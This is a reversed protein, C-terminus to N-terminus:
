RVVSPTVGARDALVRTSVAAWGREPILEAAVRLRRRVDQGRAEAPSPAM